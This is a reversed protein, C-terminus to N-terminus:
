DTSIRVASTRKSGQLRKAGALPNRRGMGAELQGSPALELAGAVRHLIETSPDVPDETPSIKANVEMAATFVSM